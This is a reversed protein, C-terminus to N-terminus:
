ISSTTCVVSLLANFENIDDTSVNPAYLIGRIIVRHELTAM